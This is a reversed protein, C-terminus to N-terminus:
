NNTQDNGGPPPAHPQASPYHEGLLDRFEIATEADEASIGLSVYHEFLARRARRERSAANRAEEIALGPEDATLAAWGTRAARDPGRATLYSTLAEIWSEYEVPLEAATAALEAEIGDPLAGSSALGYLPSAQGCHLLSAIRRATADDIPRDDLVADAIGRQIRQADDVADSRDPQDDDPYRPPQEM